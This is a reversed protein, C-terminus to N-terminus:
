LRRSLYAGAFAAAFGATVSLAVYALAAGPRGDEALLLAEMTFTSFTTFAGLGGTLLGARLEPAVVLRELTEFFLFGMGFSGLVNITLTAWPFRHGAVTQVLLTMGYRAWAGVVAGLSVSLFLWM